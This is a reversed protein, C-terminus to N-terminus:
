NNSAEKEQNALPRREVIITDRYFDPHLPVRIKVAAFEGGRGNPYIVVDKKNMGRNNFKMSGDSYVILTEREKTVAKEPGPTSACGVTMLLIFAILYFIKNDINV